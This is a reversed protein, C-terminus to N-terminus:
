HTFHDFEGAKTGQIWAALKAKTTTIAIAPDDSERIHILGGDAAIEVCDAADGSYSSKQWNLKEM